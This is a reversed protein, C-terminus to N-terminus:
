DPSPFKKYNKGYEPRYHVHCTRCSFIMEENLSILTPLDKELAAKYAKKGVDLMLKTDRMWQGQDLARSPMMLLNASEAVILSNAVLQNWEVQTEPTRSEIYLISDSAPYILKAMLDSMTGISQPRPRQAELAPTSLLGSLLLLAFFRM